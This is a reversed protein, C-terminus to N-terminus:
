AQAKNDYNGSLVKTFNELKMLWALNCHWTRAPDRGMLWNSKSVYEFFRDFWDLAEAETQAMRQGAREGSEYCATLVWRWRAKMAKGDAGAIWLSKRPQPLEPLRKAYLKLLGAYPCTPLSTASSLSNDIDTRNQELGNCEKPHLTVDGNCAENQKEKQLARHKAVRDRSSDSSPQRKEWNLLNWDSDIFGKAEFVAKTEALDEASIRLHFAIETEHLTVLANSCRLCLLMVYRRQMAESMMQVKPDHSFESYLRFWPNSM